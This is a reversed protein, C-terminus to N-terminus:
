KGILREFQMRLAAAMEGAAESAVDWNVIPRVPEVSSAAYTTDHYYAAGITLAAGLVIGFLLRM